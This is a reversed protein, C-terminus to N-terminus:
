REKAQFSLAYKLGGSSTQVEEQLTAGLQETLTQVLLLGMGGKRTHQIGQGNDKYILAYSGDKQKRLDIDIKGEQSGEFAHKLSNTLWENLIIGLPIAQGVDLFFGQLDTHLRVQHHTAQYLDLVFRQLDDLYELFNIQTAEKQRVYLREHILRMTNLRTQIDRIATQAETSQARRHQINLLSTIIQLNNKVRHHLEQLLAEIASKQQRNQYLLWATYGLLALLVLAFVSLFLTQKQQQDLRSQTLQERERLLQNEYEREQIRLRVEAQAIAEEQELLRLSDTYNRDIQQYFFAREYNQQAEYIESLTRAANRIREKYPFQKALAFGKQAHFLANPIDEIVLYYNALNIHIAAIEKQNNIQEYIVLAKQNNIVVSDFRKLYKQVTALNALANAYNNDTIQEREYIAIARRLLGQAQAYDGKNRWVVSANNLVQALTEWKKAHTFVEEARGYYELAQDYDELYRYTVALNTYARGVSLTDQLQRYVRLTEQYAGIAQDYAAQSQYALGLNNYSHGIFLTDKVKQFLKIASQIAQEGEAYRTHILYLIAEHHFTLAVERDKELKQYLARAAEAYWQASDPDTRRLALLRQMYADAQLSDSPLANVSQIFFCLALFFFTEKIKRM